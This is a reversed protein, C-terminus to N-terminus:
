NKFNLHGTIQGLALSDRTKPDVIFDKALLTRKSSFIGNGNEITSYPPLELSGSLGGNALAIRRFDILEVGSYIVEVDYHSFRRIVQADPDLQNALTQYFSQNDLNIIQLDRLPDRELNDTINWVAVVTDEITPDFIQAERVYLFYRIGILGVNNSTRMQMTTQTAAFNTPRFDNPVVLEISDLVVTSDFAVPLDDPPNVRIVITDGGKFDLDETKIKYLYNPDVLFDGPDRSYGENVANVKELTFSNGTSINTITVDVNDYFVEGPDEALTIANVDEQGFAREVRIYQATDSMNVFGYVVPFNNGDEILDFDNKCSALLGVAILCILIRNM